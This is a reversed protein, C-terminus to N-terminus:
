SLPALIVGSASVKPMAAPPTSSTNSAMAAPRKSTSVGDGDSAARQRRAAAAAGVGPTAPVVRPATCRDLPRTSARAPAKSHPGKRIEAALLPGLSDSALATRKRPRLMSSNCSSAALLLTTAAATPVLTSSTWASSPSPPSPSSSCCSARRANSEAAGQAPEASSRLAAFSQIRLHISAVPAFTCTASPKSDTLSSKSRFTSPAASISKNGATAVEKLDIM